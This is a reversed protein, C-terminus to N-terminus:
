QRKRFFETKLAKGGNVRSFLEKRQMEISGRAALSRLMEVFDEPRDPFKAKTRRWLAIPSRWKDDVAALLDYEDIM